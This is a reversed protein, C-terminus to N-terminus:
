QHGNEGDDAQATGDRRDHGAADPSPQVDSGPGVDDLGLTRAIEDPRWDSAPRVRWGAARFAKDRDEAEPDSDQGTEPRPALVVAVRAAPWALEAM